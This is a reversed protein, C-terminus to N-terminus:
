TKLAADVDTYAECVQVELGARVLAQRVDSRAGALRLARAM